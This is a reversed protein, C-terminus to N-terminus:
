KKRQQAKPKKSLEKTETQLLRDCCETLSAVPSDTAEIDIVPRSDEATSSVTADQHQNADTKKFTGRIKRLRNERKDADVKRKKVKLEMDVTKDSIVKEVPKKTDSVDWPRFIRSYSSPIM